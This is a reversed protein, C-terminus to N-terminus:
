TSPRRRLAPLLPDSRDLTTLTSLSGSVGAAEM